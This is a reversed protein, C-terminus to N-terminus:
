ILAHQEKVTLRQLERFNVVDEVALLPFVELSHFFVASDLLIARRTRVVKHRLRTIRLALDSFKRDSVSNPFCM